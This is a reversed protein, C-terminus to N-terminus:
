QQYNLNFLCDIYEKLDDAFDEVDTDEVFVFTFCAQGNGHFRCRNPCIGLAKGKPFRQYFRHGTEPNRKFCCKERLENFNAQMEIRFASDSEYQAIMEQSTNMIFCSGDPPYRWTPSRKFVPAGQLTRLINPHMDPTFDMNALIFFVHYKHIFAVLLM